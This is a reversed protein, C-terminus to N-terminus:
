KKIQVVRDPAKPFRRFVEMDHGPVLLQDSEGLVKRIREYSSKQEDVGVNYPCVVNYKLNEYTYLGDGALVVLGDETNVSLFQCGPMHGGMFHATIGPMLEKDGDIIELRGTEKLQKIKENDDPHSYSTPIADFEKKQIVFNANTFANMGGTHDRCTAEIVVTKIMSADVGISALLTQQDVFDLSGKTSFPNSLATEKTPGTGFVMEVDTGKIYAFTFPTEEQSKEKIDDNDIAAFRSFGAMSASMLVYVEYNPANSLEGDSPSEEEGCSIISVLMCLAFIWTFQRM